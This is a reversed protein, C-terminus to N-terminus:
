QKDIEEEIKKKTAEILQMAISKSVIEIFPSETIDKIIPYERIVSAAFPLFDKKLHVSEKNEQPKLMHKHAAYLGGIHGAVLYFFRGGFIANIEHIHTTTLAFVSLFILSNKGIIRNKKHM